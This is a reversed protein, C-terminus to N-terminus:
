YMVRIFSSDIKTKQLISNKLIVNVLFILTIDPSEKSSDNIEITREPNLIDSLFFMDSLKKSGSPCPRAMHARKGWFLM